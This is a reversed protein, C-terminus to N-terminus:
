QWPSIKLIVYKYDIDEKFTAGKECGQVKGVGYFTGTPVVVADGRKYPVRSKYTYPKSWYERDKFSVYVAYDESSEEVIM